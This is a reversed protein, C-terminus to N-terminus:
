KNKELNNLYIFLINEDKNVEIWEFSNVKKNKKLFNEIEDLDYRNHYLNEEEWYKIEPKLNDIKSTPKIFFTHSVYKSSLRIMENLSNKFDPQHELVHRSYSYECFNDELDVKEISSLFMPVKNKLNYSYLYESSDLGLYEVENFLNIFNKYDIALGCGFDIISKPNINKVILFNLLKSRSEAKDNGLWNHFIEINQSLSKDWWTQKFIDTMIRIDKDM